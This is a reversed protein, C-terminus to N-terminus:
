CSSKEEVLPILTSREGMAGFSTKMGDEEFLPTQLTLPIRLNSLRSMFREMEGVRRNVWMTQLPNRAKQDFGQCAQWFQRRHYENLTEIASHPPSPVSKNRLRSRLWVTDELRPIELNSYMKTLIRYLVEMKQIFYRINENPIRSASCSKPLFFWIRMWRGKAKSAMKLNIDISTKEDMIRFNVCKVKLNGIQTGM